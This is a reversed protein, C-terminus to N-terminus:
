GGAVIRRARALANEDTEAFAKDVFDQIQRGPTYIVRLKRKEAEARYAADSAMRAFAGRLMAVAGTPAGPPLALGRGLIGPTALIAVIPKDEPKAADRLMPVDPLNPDAWVGTQMIPLAFSEGRPGEFWHPVISRWTLWDFGAGQHEGKEMALLTRRADDYGGVSEIKLGLLGKLMRPVLFSASGPGAHGSVLGTTRMDQWQAIGSDRRVAMVTNTQETAGIWTFRRADYRVAEPRLMQWLVTADPPVLFHLGTRPMASAAYNAAKIGGAGPMPRVVIDPEGPIFRKLHRSMLRAYGGYTGDPDDGTVFTVTKGGYDVAPAPAASFGALVAAGAACSLIFRKAHKM